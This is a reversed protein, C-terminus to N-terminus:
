RPFNTNTSSKGCSLHIHDIDQITFDLDFAKGLANSIDSRYDFLYLNGGEHSCSINNLADILREPSYEHGTRKQVLRVIVNQFSRKKTDPISM